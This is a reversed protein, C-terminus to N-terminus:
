ALGYPTFNAKLPLNQIYQMKFNSFTWFSSFKLLFFLRFPLNAKIESPSKVKTVDEFFHKFDSNEFKWDLTFFDLITIQMSKQVLNFISESSLGVKSPTLFSSFSQIADLIM